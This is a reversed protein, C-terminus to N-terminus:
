PAKWGNGDRTPMGIAIYCDTCCFRNTRHNYTGDRTAEIAATSRENVAAVRYESIMSAPRECRYCVPESIEASVLSV